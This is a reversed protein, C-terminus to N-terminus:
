DRFYGFIYGGEYDLRVLGPYEDTKPLESQIEERRISRIVEFSRHRGDIELSTLVKRDSGPGFFSARRLRELSAFHDSTRSVTLNDFDNYYRRKLLDQSTGSLYRQEESVIASVLRKLLVLSSVASKHMLTYATEQSDIRMEESDIIAGGDVLGSMKHLTVKHVTEDNYIAWSVPDKGAYEPLNGPHINFGGYRVASLLEEPVIFPSFVSVVADAIFGKGMRYGLEDMLERKSSLRCKGEGALRLAHKSNRGKKDLVCYVVEISEEDVLLRLSKLGTSEGGLFIIRTKKHISM